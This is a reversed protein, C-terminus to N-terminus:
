FDCSLLVISGVEMCHKNAVQMWTCPLLCQSICPVDLLGISFFVRSGVYYPTMHSGHVLLGPRLIVCAGSTPPKDKKVWGKEAPRPTGIM